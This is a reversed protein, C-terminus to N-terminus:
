RLVRLVGDADISEAYRHFDVGSSSLNGDIAILLSPVARFTRGPERDLDVVLVSLEPDTM